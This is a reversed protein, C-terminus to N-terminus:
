FTEIIAPATDPMWGKPRERGRVAMGYAANEVKEVSTQMVELKKSLEAKLLSNTGNGHTTDIAGFAVRLARLDELVSRGDEAAPMIGSTAMNTIAFRMMEGSLDCLGLLYDDGTLLVGSPMLDQADQLTLLRQSVLYHSFSVAEIYEQIGPSLQRQWRWYNAGQLDPM